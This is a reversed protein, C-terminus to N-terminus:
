KSGGCVEKHPTRRVNGVRFHPTESLYLHGIALALADSVDLSMPEKKLGLLTQVMQQTQEKSANGNGTLAQRIRKVSYGQTPLNSESCASLIVGRAHGMLIATRPHRYHSYLEELVALDPRCSVLVQQVGLHIKSLRQALSTQQPTEIVGAEVLRLSGDRREVTGYGTV